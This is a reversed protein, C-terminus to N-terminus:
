RDAEEQRHLASYLVQLDEDSIDVVTDLEDFAHRLQERTFLPEPDASAGGAHHRPFAWALPYRRWAFPANLVVAAVVITGANLLVPTLVFDWGPDNGASALLVATLATAGGPPHICRLVHMAGIAGAVAVAAAVSGEGLTLAVAVGVVASIGHGGLVAWPQSLPGHPVAFVLVASAGISGVLWLSSTDAPAGISSTATVVWIGLGAVVTAVLREYWPVAHEPVGLLHGLTSWVGVASPRERVTM